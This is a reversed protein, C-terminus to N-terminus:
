AMLNNVLNELYEQRGSIPAVEANRDLVRASLEELGVRGALIDKGLAGSWGQYRADLLKDLRGDQLLREAALLARACVDIGGVHAHFLDEAEFSQRRVKADFNLGGTTLGGGKLLVYLALALEPVNNPFQDTDWGLLPDGRNIDLSGFIGYAMATAIEHEFAHGALAAHNAEINVKVEKELGFHRLFGYVTATDFDYQHKSPECPKPEILIAGKFGIKHKYEVVMSLFRGLQELEQKVDTNLLTEYGERGGWLVYNEGGLERTADMAAKVQCAAMAFVEPNPNSAAGAMYRKNGFLNATGWLLKVGTREQEKALVEVMARLNNLSERPTAGEPAVDRDHFTYLKVGLRTIFDFAAEAKLRAAAMADSGGYWPRDFTPGGFTDQGDACFTHWYCVALRLHDEMRKGLVLRDKDYYRYALPNDSEIGEYRIAPVSSFYSTM